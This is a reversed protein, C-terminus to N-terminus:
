SRKLAISTSAVAPELDPGRVGVVEPRDDVFILHRVHEGRDRPRLRRARRHDGAALPQGAGRVAVAVEDRRREDLVHPRLSSIVRLSSNPGIM